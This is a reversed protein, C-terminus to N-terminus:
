YFHEFQYNHFREFTEKDLAERHNPHNIEILVNVRQRMNKECAVMFSCGIERISLRIAEEDTTYM